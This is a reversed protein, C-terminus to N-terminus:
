QRHHEPDNSRPSGPSSPVVPSWTPAEHDEPREPLLEHPDFRNKYSMSPCAGIWYGLYLSKLGRQRALEIECMLSFTGPALPRWEPDHYFYASSLSEPLLDILGIGILTEGDFYRLERASPFRNLCEELADPDM